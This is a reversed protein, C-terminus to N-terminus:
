SNAKIELLINYCQFRIANLIASIVVIPKIVSPPFIVEPYTDGDFEIKVKGEVAIILSMLKTGKKLEQGRKFDYIVDILEGGYYDINYEGKSVTSVIPLIFRHKEINSLNRIERMTRGAPTRHYPQYREIIKLFKASVNPLCSSTKRWYNKRSRALPFAIGMKKNLTMSDKGSVLAWALYDLTSRFNHIVDGLQMRIDKGLSPAKLVYVTYKAWRRKDIGRIPNTYPYSQMGMTFTDKTPDLAKSIDQYLENLQSSARDFKDFADNLSHM